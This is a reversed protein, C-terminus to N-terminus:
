IISKEYADKAACVQEDVSSSDLVMLVQDKKVADGKKVNISLINSPM